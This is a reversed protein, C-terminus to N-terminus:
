PEGITFWVGYTQPRPPSITSEAVVELTTNSAFASYPLGSIAEITYSRSPVPDFGYGVAELMYRSATAGLPALALGYASVSHTRIQGPVVYSSDSGIAEIAYSKLQTNAFVLATASVNRANLHAPPPIYFDGIVELTFNQVLSPEKYLFLATKSLVSAQLAVPPVYSNDKAVAELVSNSVTRNALLLVQYSVSSSQVSM